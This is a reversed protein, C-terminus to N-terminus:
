PKNNQRNSLLPKHKLVEAVNISIIASIRSAKFSGLELM